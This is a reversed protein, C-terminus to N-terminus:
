AALLWENDRIWSLELAQGEASERAMWSVIRLIRIAKGLSLIAMNELLPELALALMTDGVNIAVPVGHARHLTPGDRRLESGDEVDDHILFANHYLELVMASTTVGDLSGGLARCTAVCLAPRLAKAERLPYEFILDYLVDAYPTDKPVVRRMEGLVLERCESMYSSLLDLPM